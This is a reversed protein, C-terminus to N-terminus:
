MSSVVVVVVLPQEGFSAVHMRERAPSPPEAEELRARVLLRLRERESDLWARMTRTTVVRREAVAFEGAEGVLALCEGEGLEM